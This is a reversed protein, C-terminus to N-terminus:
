LETRQEIDTDLNDEVTFVKGNQVTNTQLHDDGEFVPSIIGKSEEIVTNQHVGNQVIAGNQNAIGNAEKHIDGNQNLDGNLKVDIEHSKPPKYLKWALIIFVLTAIKVCGAILM